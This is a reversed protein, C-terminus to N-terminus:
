RKAEYITRGNRRTVELRNVDLMQSLFYDTLGKLGISKSSDAPHDYEKFELSKENQLKDVIEDLSLAEESILDQIHLFVDSNDEVIQYEKKLKKVKNEKEKATKKLRKNEEQLEKVREELKEVDIEGSDDYVGEMIEQFTGRKKVNNYRDVGYELLEKIVRARNGPHPKQTDDKPFEQDAIRQIHFVTQPPLEVGAHIFDEYKNVEPSNVDVYTYHPCDHITQPKCLNREETDNSMNKSRKPM